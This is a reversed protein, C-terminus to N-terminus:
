SWAETQKKAADLRRFRVSPDGERQMPKVEDPAKPVTKIFNRAVSILGYRLADMADDSQKVPGREKRDKDPAIDDPEAYHYTEFEDITFPSTGRIIKYHRSKVLEYVRDIGVQVRNDAAVASLGHRCFEEINGPQDPGCYFREINFVSRKQQAIEVMQSLTLGSKYVESVQFFRNTPTIAIVLIVFPHTFGWDVAAIFRTGSPFVFPECVNEEEDFCDYVLGEAKTWEGGFMMNFRRPDMTEKFKLYSEKPFYPNEDSRGQVLEVDPRANPNKMKPRIIEKFMWNLSYPSTTLFIQAQKFAARAQINEWFHLSYLGAEDPWIFRVNTIGVISNPDTATRFYATGGGHMKFEALSKNYEGYDGMIRMFAPLTSQQLIKYSPSTILFNDTPDTYEHMKMKCKNAGTSTKGAQIGFSMVVIPKPSFLALEQKPYPRFIM